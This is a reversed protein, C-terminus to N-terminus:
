PPAPPSSSWRCNCCDPALLFFPNEAAKPDALVLAGQGFYNLMLCPMVIWFWAVRIPRRGFHGMDAYLAEGGTLSLFVAAMVGLTLAPHEAAYRAGILPDIAELVGPNRVIGGIGLLALVVFWM